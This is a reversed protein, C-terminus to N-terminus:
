PSSQNSAAMMAGLPAGVIAGLVAMVVAVEAGHSNGLVGCIAAAVGGGLFAGLPHQLMRLGVGPKKLDFSNGM